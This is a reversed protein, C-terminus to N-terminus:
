FCLLTSSAENMWAINFNLFILLFVMVVGPLNPKPAPIYSLHGTKESSSADDGWLMYFRPEEKPKDFKILGKRIARVLGLVQLNMLCLAGSIFCQLVDPSECIFGELYFECHHSM